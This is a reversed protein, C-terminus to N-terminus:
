NHLFFVGLESALDRKAKIAKAQEMSPRGTMGMDTLMDRLMQIQKSPQDEIGEFLKSWVKRVGCAIVFGKLRKITAEDKSLTATSKKEGKGKKTSAQKGKSKGKSKQKPEDVIDSMDSDMKTDNDEVLTPSSMGKSTSPESKAPSSSAPTAKKHKKPPPNVKTEDDESSVRSPNADAEDEEGDSAAIFEASKFKEKTSPKSRGKSSAEVSKRKKGRPQKSELNIKNDEKESEEGKKEEESTGGAEDDNAKQPKNRAETIADGIATKYKKEDLVGKELGLKEEIKQRVLRPTLSSLTGEKRAEVYIDEALNKLKSISPVSM